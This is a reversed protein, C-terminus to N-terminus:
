GVSGYARQKAEEANTEAREPRRGRARRLRVGSLRRVAACPHFSAHQLQALKASSPEGASGESRTQLCHSCATV